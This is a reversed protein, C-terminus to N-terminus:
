AYYRAPAAASVETEAGQRSQASLAPLLLGANAMQGIRRYHDFLPRFIVTLTSDDIQGTKPVERIQSVPILLLGTEILRRRSVKGRGAVIEERSQTKGVEAAYVGTGSALASLQGDAGLATDCMRALERSAPQLGREVKSLFGKSYFTMRSLQILSINAATRRKRLEEGFPADATTLLAQRAAM